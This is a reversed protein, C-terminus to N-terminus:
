VGFLITLISSSNEFEGKYISVGIYSLILLTALIRKLAIHGDETIFCKKLYTKLKNMFVGKM